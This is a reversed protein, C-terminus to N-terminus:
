EEEEEEEEEMETSASETPLPIKAVLADRIGSAFVAGAVSRGPFAHALLVPATQEAVFIEIRALFIGTEVFAVAFIQLM